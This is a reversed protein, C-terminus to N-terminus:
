PECTTYPLVSPDSPPEFRYVAFCLVKWTRAALYRLYVVSQVANIVTVTAILRAAWRFDVLIRVKKGAQV